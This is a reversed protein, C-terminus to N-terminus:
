VVVVNKRIAHVTVINLMTTTDPLFANMLCVVLHLSDM